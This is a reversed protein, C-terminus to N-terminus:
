EPPQANARLRQTVGSQRDIFRLAGARLRQEDGVFIVARRSRTAATYLVERTLLPSDRDPLMVAVADFESGQSKHVTLAHAWEVQGRLADPLFVQFGEEAPFVLMVGVEPHRRLGDDVAVRLAIGQDGNFLQRDYDNHLMMVPEGPLFASREDLNLSRALRAHLAQNAAIVGQPGGRTLCLVRSRELHSLLSAVKAADQAAFAGDRATYTHALLSALSLPGEAEGFAAVRAEFWRDFFRSLLRQRQQIPKAPVALLEAGRWRLGEVHAARPLYREDDPASALFADPDSAIIARATQLIHRGAPDRPDMRFSRALRVSSGAMPHDSDGAAPVLDRLVAGANVSPLQDADGLLVLQAEGVARTLQDMLALDIMSAEDVIVVRHPLPNLDDHLFADRQPAYRLLRHLTSPAPLKRLLAADEASPTPVQRLAAQIASHMRKAAKGTPAALAIAEPAVGLRAVLRLISVIISTKGTGPGGSIVCLGSRAAAVVAHQQEDSLQMPLGAATMPPNALLEALAATVVAPATDAPARRQLASLTDALAQERVWLRHPYIDPGDLILPRTAGPPGVLAALRGEQSLMARLSVIRAELAAAGAADGADVADQAEGLASVEGLLPKLLGRLALLHRVEAEAGESALVRLRTSGRGMSQLSALLLAAVEVQEQASLGAQWTAMEGAMYLAELTLEPLEDVKAALGELWRTLPADPVTIPYSRALWMRAAGLPTLRLM